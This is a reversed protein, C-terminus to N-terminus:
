ENKEVEEVKRIRKEVVCFALCGVGIVFCLSLVLVSMMKKNGFPLFLGFGVVAALIVSLGGIVAALVVLFHKGKRKM